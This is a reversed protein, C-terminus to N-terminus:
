LGPGRVRPRDTGTVEYVAPMPMALWFDADVPLGLGHLARSIWTGHSSLITVDTAQEAFRRM